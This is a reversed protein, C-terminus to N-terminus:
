LRDFNVFTSEQYPRYVKSREWPKFNVSVPPLSSRQVNKYGASSAVDSADTRLNQKRAIMLYDSEIIKLFPM